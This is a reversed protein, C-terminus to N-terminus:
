SKTTSVTIAGSVLQQRAAEIEAQLEPSITGGCLELTFGDDLELNSKAFGPQLEGAEVGTVIGAVAGPTNTASSGFYVGSADPDACKNSVNSMLLGNAEEAAQEQGVIANNMGTFVISAGGSFAATTAEKAKAVDDMDGTSTDIYEMAPVKSRAGDIFGNGAAVLPTIEIGYVHGLKTPAPSASAAMIGGLYAVEGEALSWRSLNPGTQSGNVIVFHVDPFEPAVAAGADAFQGGLGILVDPSQSALNRFAEQASAVQVNEQFIAEAGAAETAELLGEYGAQSFSQDDKSSPLVIAYTADSDGAAASAGAAESAETAAETAAETTAETTAESDDDSGCGAAVVALALPVLLMRIRMALSPLSATNWRNTGRM